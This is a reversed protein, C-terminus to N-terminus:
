NKWVVLSPQQVSYQDRGAAGLGDGPVQGQDLEEAETAQRPSLAAIMEPKRDMVQRTLFPNFM